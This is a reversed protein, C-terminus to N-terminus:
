SCQEATSLFQVDTLDSVHKRDDCVACLAAIVLITKEDHCVEGRLESLVLISSGTESIKDCITIVLKIRSCLCNTLAVLTDSWCFSCRCIWFTQKPIVHM